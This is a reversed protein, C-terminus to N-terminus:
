TKNALEVDDISVEPKEKSNLKNQNFQDPTEEERMSDLLSLGSRRHNDESTDSFDPDTLDDGSSLDEEEEEEIAEVNHGQTPFKGM